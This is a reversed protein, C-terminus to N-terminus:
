GAPPRNPLGTAQTVRAAEAPIVAADMPKLRWHKGDRFFLVLHFHSYGRNVVRVELKGLGEVDDFSRVKPILGLRIVRKGPGDIVVSSRGVIFLIPIVDIILFVVRAVAPPLAYLGPFAGPNAGLAFLVAFFYLLGEVFWNRHGYVFTQPRNQLPNLLFYVQVGVAGWWILEYFSDPILFFFDPVHFYFGGEPGMLFAPFVYVFVLAIIRGIRHKKEQETDFSAEGIPSPAGPGAGSQHGYTPEM